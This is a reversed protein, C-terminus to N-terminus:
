QHGPRRGLTWTSRDLTAGTPFWQRYFAVDDASQHSMQVIADHRRAMAQREDLPKANFSAITDDVLAQEVSGRYSHLAALSPHDSLLLVFVANATRGNSKVGMTFKISGPIDPVQQLPPLVLYSGRRLQEQIALAVEVDLVLDAEQYADSLSAPSMSQQHALLSEQKGRLLSDAFSKAVALDPGELPGLSTLKKLEVLSEPAEPTPETVFAVETRTKLKSLWERSHEVPIARGAARENRPPPTEHPGSPLPEDQPTAGHQALAVLLLASACVLSCTLWLALPRRDAPPRTTTM